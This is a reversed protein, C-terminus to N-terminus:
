GSRPLSSAPVIPRRDPVNGGIATVCPQGARRTSPRQQDQIKSGIGGDTRLTTVPWRGSALFSGPAGPRGRGPGVAPPAGSGPALELFPPMRGDRRQDVWRRLWARITEASVGLILCINEFSFLPLPDRSTFWQETEWYLLRRHFGREGRNRQFCRVADELIAAALRQEGAGRTRDRLMPFFGAPLASVFHFPEQKRPHVHRHSMM